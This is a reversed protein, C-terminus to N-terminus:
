VRRGRLNKGPELTGMALQKTCLPGTEPDAQLHSAPPPSACLPQDWGQLRPTPPPAGRCSPRLPAPGFSTFPPASRGGEGEGTRRFGSTSEARRSAEDGEGGGGGPRGGWWSQLLQGAATRVDRVDGFAGGRREGAVGSSVGGVGGLQAGLLLARRAEDRRQCRLHRRLLILHRIRPRRDHLYRPATLPPPLAPPYLRAIAMCTLAPFPSSPLSPFPPPILSWHRNTHLKINVAQLQLPYEPHMM